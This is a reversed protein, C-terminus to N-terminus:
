GKIARISAAGFVRKREQGVSVPTAAKYNVAAVPLGVSARILRLYEDRLGYSYGYSLCRTNVRAADRTLSVTLPQQGWEAQLAGPRTVLLPLWTPDAPNTVTDDIRFNTAPTFVNTALALNGADEGMMENWLNAAETFTRASLWKDEGHSISLAGYDDLSQGGGADQPQHRIASYLLRHEADKGAADCQLTFQAQTPTNVRAWWPADGFLEEDAYTRVYVECLTITNDAVGAPAGPLTSGLRLRLGASGSKENFVFMPQLQDRRRADLFQRAPGPHMRIPILVSRLVDTADADPIDAPPQYWRSGRLAAMIDTCTRGDVESGRLYEGGFIDTLAVQTVMGAVETGAVAATMTAATTDFRGTIKIVAAQKHLWREGQRVPITSLPVILESGQAQAAAIEVTSFSYVWWGKARPSFGGSFECTM